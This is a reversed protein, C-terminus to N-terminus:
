PIKGKDPQMQTSQTTEPVNEAVKKKCFYNYPTNCTHDNLRFSDKISDKEEGCRVETCNENSRENNPENKQWFKKTINTNDYIWRFTQDERPGYRRGGIWGMGTNEAFVGSTGCRDKANQSSLNRMFKLEDLSYVSALEADNQTCYEQAETWNKKQKDEYFYCNNEYESWGPECRVTLNFLYLDINM